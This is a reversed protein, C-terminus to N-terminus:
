NLIQNIERKVRRERNNSRYIIKPNDKYKM